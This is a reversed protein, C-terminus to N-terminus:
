SPDSTASIRTGTIQDLVGVGAHPEGSLNIRIEDTFAGGTTTEAVHEGSQTTSVEGAATILYNITVKSNPTFGSGTVEFFLGNRRVTVQPTIPHPLVFNYGIATHGNGAPCRGKDPYGDFFLGHCNGCYRWSNQRDPAPPIDHPLVFNYGAATHGNGAPCRGKDPYGDFFLGHCNGCYRWDKQDAMGIVERTHRDTMM